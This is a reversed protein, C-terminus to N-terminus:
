LQRVRGVGIEMLDEGIILKGSFNEKAKKLRSLPTNGPGIHSLVLTKAQCQQAVKGVDQITTHATITHYYLPWAPDGEKVGKFTSDIWVKDIVEHVLVDTGIALKQLNGNTDPGTDGSIVLSGDDTDFRFAFSPYVQYHDVLTASVRVLDDRYIEFPEIAPCTEKRTWRISPDPPIFDAPWPITRPDGIERVDIIKPLDPYGADLACDNFNQAFAQLLLNTMQKTGPTPTIPRPGGCETQIISGTYGTQNENLKGRDGPGIIQLRNPVGFGAKAGIMLFTPYDGLHDMHLHTIFVARVNRLFTSLELQTKEGNITVFHAYNFAEALRQTSGFGLDIIYMADGIVLAQSASARNSNPWWTMGGTTGLLVLRTNFKKKASRKHSNPSAAFSMKGGLNLLLPTMALAGAGKLFSRRTIIGKETANKFMIVEKDKRIDM